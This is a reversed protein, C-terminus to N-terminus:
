GLRRELSGQLKDRLDAVKTELASRAATETALAAELRAIRDSGPAPASAAPVNTTGPGDLEANPAFWAALAFGTALGAAVLLVGKWM